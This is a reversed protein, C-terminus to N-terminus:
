IRAARKQFFPRTFIAWFGQDYWRQPTRKETKIQFTENFENAESTLMNSETVKREQGHDQLVQEQSESEKLLM